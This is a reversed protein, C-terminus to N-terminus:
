TRTGGAGRSDCTGLSELDTSQTTLNDVSAAAAAKSVAEASVLMGKIENLHSRLQANEEMLDDFGITMQWNENGDGGGSAEVASGTERFAESSDSFGSILSSLDMVFQCLGACM